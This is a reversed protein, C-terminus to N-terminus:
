RLRILRRQPESIEQIFCNVFDRKKFDTPETCEFARGGHIEGVVAFDRM